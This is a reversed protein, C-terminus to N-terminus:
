EAEAVFLDAVPLLLGPLLEGGGIEDGAKLIRVSMVTDYVYVLAESPYVVWVQRVGAQFYERTKAMVDAARNTPSVEIALDPVVNWAADDPIRRARPWRGNSVFAVDPRRQLDTAPDILFLMEGVVVGLRHTKVFSGLGLVLASAVWTSYAGMAPKKTIQGGVVEYLTEGDPPEIPTVDPPKTATAM